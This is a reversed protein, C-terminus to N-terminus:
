KFSEKFGTYLKQEVKASIIRCHSLQDDRRFLLHPRTMQKTVLDAVVESCCIADVWVQKITAVRARQESDPIDCNPKFLARLEM